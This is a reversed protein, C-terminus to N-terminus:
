QLPHRVESCHTDSRVAPPTQGILLMIWVVDWGQTMKTEYCQCPFVVGVLWGGKEGGKFFSAEPANTRFVENQAPQVGLPISSVWPSAPCGPPHQVGLPISSVWPSASGLIRQDHPRMIIFLYSAWSRLRTM